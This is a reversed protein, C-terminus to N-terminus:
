KKAPKRPKKPKGPAKPPTQGGAKGPAPGSASEPPAQDKNQVVPLRAEPKAAPVESDPKLAPPEPEARAIPPESVPKLVPLEAEPRVTPPNSTGGAGGGPGPPEAEVRLGDQKLLSWVAADPRAIVQTMGDAGMQSILAAAAALAARVAGVDGRVTANALGGGVLTLSNLTVRAAKIAGDVALVLPAYGRTEILGLAQGRM